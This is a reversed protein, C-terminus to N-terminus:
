GFNILVALESGAVLETGVAAVVAPPEELALVAVEVAEAVGEFAAATECRAKVM